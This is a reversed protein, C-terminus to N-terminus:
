ALTLNYENHFTKKHTAAGANEFHVGHAVANKKLVSLVWSLEELAPSYSYYFESERVEQDALSLQRSLQSYDLFETKFINVIPRM